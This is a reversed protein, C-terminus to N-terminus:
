EAVKRVIGKKWFLNQLGISGSTMYLNYTIKKKIHKSQIKTGYMPSYLIKVYNICSM